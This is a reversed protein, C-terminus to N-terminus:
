KCRSLVDIIERGFEEQQWRKLGDIGALDATRRPRKLAIAGLLAKSGVLSPDIELQAAREDRWKKLLRMREAAAAPLVPAPKRPYRPLNRTELDMASQVAKLVRAAYMDRQKPSLAGSKELQQRNTPKSVALRLLSRNGIIRYLPKNKERAIEIRLGLLGELVALSRRDLRGAGKFHVFLPGGAPEAPRVRSLARCEERVWELRGREELKALMRAALEILHCVDAAAYAIMEPPLPRKSWDKRQYKKDIAIGLERMLVAELGTEAYGLFRAALQTDFLNHITIKFDRFLSRVDYDAGHFVKMVAADRFLPKLPALSDLTLPDIVATREASAMQILCVKERFHYMSDAEVDVAVVAAKELAASLRGLESRDAIVDSAVCPLPEM